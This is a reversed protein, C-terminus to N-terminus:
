RSLYSQLLIILGYIFGSLSNSIKSPLYDSKRGIKSHPVALIIDTACEIQQVAGTYDLDLAWAVPCYRKTFADLVKHLDELNIRDSLKQVTDVDSIELVANDLIRYSIEMKQLKYALLNHGNMYFQLRFPSLYSYASLM